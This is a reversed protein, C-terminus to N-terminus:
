NDKILSETLYKKTCNIYIEQIDNIDTIKAKFIEYSNDLFKYGKNLLELYIDKEAIHKQRGNFNVMNDKVFVSGIRMPGKLNYPFHGTDRHSPCQSTYGFKMIINDNVLNLGSDSVKNFLMLYISPSFKKFVIKDKKNIITKEKDQKTLINPKKNIITKEKDQKTVINPKTVKSINNVIDPINVRNDIEPKSIKDSKNSKLNTKDIKKTNNDFFSVLKQDNNLNIKPIDKTKLNKIKQKDSLTLDKCYRKTDIWNSVLCKNVEKILKLLANHLKKEQIDSKNILIGFFYDLIDNLEESAYWFIRRRLVYPFYRKDLDGTTPISCNINTINTSNREIHTNKFYELLEKKNSDILRNTFIKSLYNYDDKNLQKKLKRTFNNNDDLNVQTFEALNTVEYNFTQILEHNDIEKAEGDIIPYEFKYYGGKNYKVMFKFDLQNESTGILKIKSNQSFIINNNIDYKIDSKNMYIGVKFNIYNLNNLNKFLPDISKIDYLVSDIYIKKDLGKSIYNYYRIGENFQINNTLKETLLGSKFYNYTDSSIPIKIITGNNENISYNNWISLDSIPVEYANQKCGNLYNVECFAACSNNNTKTIITINGQTNESLKMLAISGGIGFKGNRKSNTINDSCIEIFNNLTGLGTNSDFSMGVGNDVFILSDRNLYTKIKTSNADISNDDLEWKCALLTFGVSTKLIKLLKKDNIGGISIANEM